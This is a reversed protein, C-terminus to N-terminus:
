IGVKKTNKGQVNVNLLFFVVLVPFVFYFSVVEHRKFLCVYIKFFGLGELDIVSSLLLEM